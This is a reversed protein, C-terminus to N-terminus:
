YNTGQIKQLFVEPQTPVIFLKDITKTFSKSNAPLLLIGQKESRTSALISWDLPPTEPIEALHADRIESFKLLIRYDIHSPIFRIALGHSTLIYTTYAGFILNDKYLLMVGGLLLFWQLTTM